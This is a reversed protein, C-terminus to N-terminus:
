RFYNFIKLIILILVISDVIELYELIFIFMFANIINAYYLIAIKANKVCTNLKCFGNTKGRIRSLRKMNEDDRALFLGPALTLYRHGRTRAAPETSM